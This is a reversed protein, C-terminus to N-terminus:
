WGSDSPCTSLSFQVIRDINAVDFLSYPHTSLVGVLFTYTIIWVKGALTLDVVMFVIPDINVMVEFYTM